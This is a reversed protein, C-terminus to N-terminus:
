QEVHVHTVVSNTCPVQVILNEAFGNTGPVMDAATQLICWLQTPTKGPVSGVRLDTANGYQHRSNLVGSFAENREPNRWASTLILGFNTIQNVAHTEAIGNPGAVITNGVVQDDCTAPNPANNCPPTDLIPGITQINAGPGVVVTGSALGTTGVAQQQADDNILANYNSRIAEALTGPTGLIFSYSTQNIEAVTFHATATPINFEPRTPLAIGHNVYEQRIIDLQDQTVTNTDTSSCFQARIAYSLATSRNCSGNGPTSCGTGGSYSPHAPPDPVFSFSAGQMNSPNQNRISGVNPTVQWAIQSTNGSPNLSAQATITDGTPTGSFSRQALFSFNTAVSGDSPTPNDPPSTITVQNTCPPPPPPASVDYLAASDAFFEDTLCVDECPGSECEGTEQYEVIVWAGALIWASGPSWCTVRGTGNPTAVFPNTSDWSMSGAPVPYTNPQGTCTYDTRYVTQQVQDGVLANVGEPQQHFSVDVPGCTCWGCSMNTSIRKGRSLIRMRGIMKPGTRRLWQFQGSELDLPLLKGFADPIRQDRLKRVDIAVTQGPGLGVAGIMYKEDRHFIVGVFSSPETGTNKVFLVSEFDDTLKFPHSGSGATRPGPNRLPTEVVMNGTEDVSIWHGILSGPTGAYSVEVATGQGDAGITRDTVAVKKSAGSEVTLQGLPIEQDGDRLMPTATLPESSLNRLLLYGHFSSGEAPLYVGTGHLANGGFTAPDHFRMNSSFGKSAVTVFGEALVAGPRGNHEVSVGGLSDHERALIDRLNISRSHHPGLPVAFSKITGGDISTINVSTRLASDTTNTLVVKM